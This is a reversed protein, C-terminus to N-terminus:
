YHYIDTKPTENPQMLSDLTRQQRVLLSTIKVNLLCTATLTENLANYDKTLKDFKWIGYISFLLCAILGIKVITNM